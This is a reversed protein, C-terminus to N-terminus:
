FSFARSFFADSHREPLYFASFRMVNWIWSLYSFRHGLAQFLEGVGSICKEHLKYVTRSGEFDFDLLRQFVFTRSSSAPCNKQFWKGDELADNSIMRKRVSSSFIDVLSHRRVTMFKRKRNNQGFTRNCHLHKRRVTSKWRIASYSFSSSHHASRATYCDVCM